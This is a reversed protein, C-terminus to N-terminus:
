GLGVWVLIHFGDEFGSGRDQDCAVGDTDGECVVFLVIVFIVVMVVIMGLFDGTGVTASNEGTHFGMEFEEDRLITLHFNGRQVIVVLRDCNGLLANADGAAIAGIWSSERKGFFAGDQNGISSERGSVVERNDHLDFWASVGLRHHLLEVQVEDIARGAVVEFVCASAIVGMVMVVSLAFLLDWGWPELRVVWGAREM